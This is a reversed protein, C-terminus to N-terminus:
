ERLGQMRGFGGQVVGASLQMEELTREGTIKEVMRDVETESHYRQVQEKCCTRVREVLNTKVNESRIGMVMSTECDIATIAVRTYTKKGKGSLFVDARDEDYWFINMAASYRMERGGRSFQTVVFPVSKETFVTYTLAGGRIIQSEEGGKYTEETGIVLGISKYDLYISMGQSVILPSGNSKTATEGVKAITM